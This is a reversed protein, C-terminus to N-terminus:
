SSSFCILYDILLITSFYEVSVSHRYKDPTPLPESVLVDGVPPEFRERLPNAETLRFRVTRGALLHLELWFRVSNRRNEVALRWRTPSSSSDNGVPVPEITDLLAVYLSRGVPMRRQRRDYNM